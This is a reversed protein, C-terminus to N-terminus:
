QLNDIYSTLTKIDLRAPSLAFRNANEVNVEKSAWYYHKDILSLSILTVNSNVPINLSYFSRSNFDANLRVITRKDKFAAFVYTNKNTYNPPLTVNLRTRQSSTDIFLGCNLWGTNTTTMEYGQKAIGFATSDWVTINGDTSRIWTYLSDPNRLAALQSFKMNIDPSTITWKLKLFSNPSLLLEHKNQSLKVYFTGGSELLYKNSTTPLLYKIYDGKKKLQLVEIIVTGNIPASNYPNFCSFAPVTIELNDGLKIKGGIARDFSGVFSITNNIAASLSDSLKASIAKNAWTTDNIGM